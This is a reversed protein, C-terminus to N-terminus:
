RAFTVNSVAVGTQDSTAGTPVYETADICADFIEYDPMCRHALVMNALFNGTLGLVTNTSM